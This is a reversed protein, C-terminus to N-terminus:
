LNHTITNLTMKLLIESIDYLNSKNTLFGSYWFFVVSRYCTVSVSYWRTCVAMLQIRVWLNLASLCQNYMYNYICSGYSLSWSPRQSNFPSFGFWYLKVVNIWVIEYIYHSSPLAIEMHWQTCSEHSLELSSKLYSIGLLSLITRWLLLVTNTFSM